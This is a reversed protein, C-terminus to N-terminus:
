DPFEPFMKAFEEKSTLALKFAKNDKRTKYWLVIVKRLDNISQYIVVAFNGVICFCCLGIYVMGLESRFENEFTPNTFGVNIICVLYMIFENFLEIRNQAEIMLPRYNFIYYFNM